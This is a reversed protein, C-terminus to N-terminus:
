KRGLNKIKAPIARGRGLYRGSEDLVIVLRGGPLGSDLPVDEGRLWAPLLDAPLLFRNSKFEGWFRNVFENSPLLDEPTQEAFLLGAAQVPLDMFRGLFLGPFAFILRNRRYLALDHQELLAPLDLGYEQRMDAALELYEKRELPVFGARELPRFPLEMTETPIEAVKRLLAAFFGATHYLHPWLRAAKQVQPDFQFGEAEKLGPAPVPLHLEAIEFTAPHRRLLADLVGEDEEPSLNCTSYVVQGGVKVTQLASELLQTQRRALSTQERPTIPRLPHADTARLGQMSCPADLLVFDFTEPFWQGFREGPFQTVATNPAGWSQLVLRLATIREASSDNALVLGREGSRAALHTTKGGPSAALDLILPQDVEELREFLEVPLMSAADQIYFQGLRHEITGSPLTGEASPEVRWGTSCYPIPEVTWGYHAAWAHIAGPQTKHPNVRLSQRLPVQLDELLSAQDAPPLLPLFRGLSDELPNAPAAAPQTTKKRKM